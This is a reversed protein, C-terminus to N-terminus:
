SKAPKSPPTVVIREENFSLQHTGQFLPKKKASM